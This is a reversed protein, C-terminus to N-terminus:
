AHSQKKVKLSGGGACCSKDAEPVHATSLELSFPQGSTKQDQALSDKPNPSPELLQLVPLGLSPQPKCLGCTEQQHASETLAPRCLGSLFPSLDLRWPTLKNINNGVLKM